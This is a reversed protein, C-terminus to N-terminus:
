PTQVDINVYQKEHIDRLKNNESIIINNGKLSYVIPASVSILELIQEIPEDVIIGSFRYNGLQPANFAIRVNYRREINVAIKSLPENDFILRNDKWSIVPEVEINSITAVPISKNKESYCVVKPKGKSTKGVDEMSAISEDKFFTHKQHPKLIVEKTKPNNFRDIKVSGEILTTEIANDEKYAKINFTTGLASVKFHSTEVSFPRQKDKSVEFYGEGELKVPRDTKGYDSGYTLKSGANLMVKTGDSLVFNAMSGFPVTLEYFKESSDVAATMVVPKKYFILGGIGVSVIVIAAYRLIRLIKVKVSNDAPMREANVDEMFRFFGEKFDYYDAHYLGKSAIWIECYEDFIRKNAKDARLWVKLEDLEERKLENDLFAPILDIEQM